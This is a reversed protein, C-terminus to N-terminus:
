PDSSVKVARLKNQAATAAPDPHRFVVRKCGWGEFGEYLAKREACLEHAKAVAAEDSRGTLEEVSVIHGQEPFLM